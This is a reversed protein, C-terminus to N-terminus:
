KNDKNVTYFKSIYKIANNMMEMDIKNSELFNYLDYRNERYSFFVNIVVKLSVENCTSIEILRSKYKAERKVENIYDTFIKTIKSSEKDLYLIEKNKEILEELDGIFPMINNSGVKLKASSNGKLGIDQGKLHVENKNEDVIKDILKSTRFENLEFSCNRRLIDIQANETISYFNDNGKFSLSDFRHELIKLDKHYVWLTPYLVYESKDIKTYYPNIEKIFRIVIKQDQEFLVPKVFDIVTSNNIGMPSYDNLNNYENVKNNIIFNDCKYYISYRYGKEIFVREIVSITNEASKDLCKIIREKKSLDTSIPVLDPNDNRDDEIYAAFKSKVLNNIIRQLIHGSLEYKITNRLLEIYKNIDM